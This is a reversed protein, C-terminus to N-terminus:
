LRVGKVLWTGMAVMLLATGLWTIAVPKAARGLPPPTGQPSTRDFTVVWLVLTTIWGAFVGAVEPLDGIGYVLQNWDFAVQGAAFGLGVLLPMVLRRWGSVARTGFLWENSARVFLKMPVLTFVVTLLLGTAMFIWRWTESGTLLVIRAFDGPPKNGYASWFMYISGDLVFASAAVSLALAPFIRQRWRLAALLFAAGLITTVLAGAALHFVRAAESADRPLTTRAWGMGDWHVEFGHLTGGQLVAAGGHGLVEHAIVAVITAAYSVPLFFLLLLAFRAAFM